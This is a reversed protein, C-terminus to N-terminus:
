RGRCVSCDSSWKADIVRAGTGKGSMTKLTYPSTPADRYKKNFVFGCSLVTSGNVDLVRLLTPHEMPEGGELQVLDGPMYGIGGRVQISELKFRGTHTDAAVARQVRAKEIYSEYQSPVGSCLCGRFQKNDAQEKYTPLM